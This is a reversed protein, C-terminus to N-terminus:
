IDFQMQPPPALLSIELPHTDPQTPSTRDHTENVTHILMAGSDFYYCVSYTLELWGFCLEMAQTHHGSSTANLKHALKTPDTSYM